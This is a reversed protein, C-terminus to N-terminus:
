RRATWPHVKVDALPAVIRENLHVADPLVPPIGQLNM